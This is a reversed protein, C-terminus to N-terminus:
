GHFKDEAKIEEIDCKECILGKGKELSSYASGKIGKKCSACIILNRKLKEDYVTHVLMSNILAYINSLPLTIWLYNERGM